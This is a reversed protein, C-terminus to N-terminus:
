KDMNMNLLSKTNFYKIREDNFTNIIKFTSDISNNDIIILEFDEYSQNLISDLCDKLYEQSNKCNVIVSFKTKM